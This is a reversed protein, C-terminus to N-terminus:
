YNVNKKFTGTAVYTFYNVRRTKKRKGIYM